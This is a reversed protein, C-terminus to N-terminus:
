STSDPNPPEVVPQIFTGNVAVIGAPGASVPGDVSAPEGGVRAGSVTKTKVPAQKSCRCQGYNQLPSGVMKTGPANVAVNCSVPVFKVEANGTLRIPTLLIAEWRSGVGVSSPVVIPLSVGGMRDRCSVGRRCLLISIISIGMGIRVPAGSSM